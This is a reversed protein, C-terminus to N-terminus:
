PVADDTDVRRRDREMDDAHLRPIPGGFVELARSDGRLPMARGSNRSVSVQRLRKAWMWHTRVKAPVVMLALALYLGERPNFGTFGVNRGFAGIVITLPITITFLATLVRMASLDLDRADTSSRPAKICTTSNLFAFASFPSLLRDYWSMLGSLAPDRLNMIVRTSIRGPPLVGGWSCRVTSDM